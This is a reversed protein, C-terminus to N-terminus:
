AGAFSTADVLGTTLLAAEVALLKAKNNGSTGDHTSTINTIEYKVLRTISLTNIIPTTLTQM